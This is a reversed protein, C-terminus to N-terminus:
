EMVEVYSAYLNHGALEDIIIDDTFENEFVPITEEEDLYTIHIKTATEDYYYLSFFVITNHVFIVHKGNIAAVTGEHQNVSYWKDGGNVYVQYTAENVAIAANSESAVPISDSYVIGKWRNYRIGTAKSRRKRSEKRIRNSLKVSVDIM